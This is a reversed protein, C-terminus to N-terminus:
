NLIGVFSLGFGQECLIDSLPENPNGFISYITNSDTQDLVEFHYVSGAPVARYMAKPQKEKVDFGGVCITGNIFASLLKLKVNKWVGVYAKQTEDYVFCDPLWGGEKRGNHKKEFIAPTQLYLKFKNSLPLKELNIEKEYKTCSALKNEGGLKIFNPLFNDGLEEVNIDVLFFTKARRIEGNNAKEIVEPRNLQVRYLKGDETTRSINQRGIGTKYEKSIYGELSYYDKSEKFTDKLYSEFLGREIFGKPTEIKESYTNISLLSSCFLEDTCVTTTYFIISEKKQNETELEKEVIESPIIFQPKTGKLLYIGKIKLEKTPDQETNALNLKEPYKSFYATRIAGFFASPLPPFIGNAWTDDGMNFPKGDRFFLTDIAEIKLIM